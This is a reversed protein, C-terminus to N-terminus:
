FKNFTWDSEDRNTSLGAVYWIGDKWLYLYEGIDKGQSVYEDENNFYRIHLDEGRDRHYAVTVDEMPHEWSHEQGEPPKVYRGLSSLDGLEILERIIEDTTYYQKLTEGVGRPYGDWHCYVAKIMDGNYKGILSNTAM